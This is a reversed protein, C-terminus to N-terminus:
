TKDKRASGRSTYAPQGESVKGVQLTAADLQQEVGNINALLRGPIIKATLTAVGKVTLSELGNERMSNAVRDYRDAIQHLRKAISEFEEPALDRYEAM